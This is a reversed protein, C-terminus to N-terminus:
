GFSQSPYETKLVAIAENLYEQFDSKGLYVEKLELQLQVIQPYNHQTSFGRTSASWLENLEPELGLLAMTTIENLAWLHMKKSEEQPNEYYDSLEEDFIDWIHTMLIEHATIRRQQIPDEFIWRIIKNGFRSSVGPHIPSVVVLYEDFRWKHETIQQIREFFLDNIENWSEQYSILKEKIESEYQEYREEVIDYILEEVEAFSDAELIRNLQWSTIGMTTARWRVGAPDDSRLMVWIMFADYEMDRIFRVRPLQGVDSYHAQFVYHGQEPAKDAALLASPIGGEGYKRVAIVYHLDTPSGIMGRPFSLKVTDEDIEYSIIGSAYPTCADTKQALGTYGVHDLTLRLLYDSGIDNLVLPWSWGTNPDRDSDVFMDWEIFLSPDDLKEPLAGAVRMAIAYTNDSLSVNSELIDLFAEGLYPNGIKDFLDGAPDAPLTTSDKTIYYYSAVAIIGCAAILIAVLITKRTM